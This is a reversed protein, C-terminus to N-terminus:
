GIKTVMANCVLLKGCESGDSADIARFISELDLDDVPTSRKSRYTRYGGNAYAAVTPVDGGAEGGKLARPNALLLAEVAIALAAM